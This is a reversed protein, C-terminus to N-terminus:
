KDHVVMGLMEQLHNLNIQSIQALYNQYTQEFVTEKKTMDLIKKAM